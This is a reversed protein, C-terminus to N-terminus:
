EPPVVLGIISYCCTYVGGVGWVAVALTFYSALTADPVAFQNLANFVVALFACTQFARFPHMFKMLLTAFFSALSEACSLIIGNIFKNGGLNTVNQMTLWYSNGCGFYIVILIITTRWIPKGARITQKAEKRTQEPHKVSVASM